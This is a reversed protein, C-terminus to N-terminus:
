TMINKLARFSPLQVEKQDLIYYIARDVNTNPTVPLSYTYIILFKEM